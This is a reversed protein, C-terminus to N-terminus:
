LSAQWYITVNLVHAFYVYVHHRWWISVNEANSAKQTPFEGTVLAKINEKIQAKFLHNLLRDHPQHNSVGDRGNHRWQLACFRSGHAYNKCPRHQVYGQNNRQQPCLCAASEM